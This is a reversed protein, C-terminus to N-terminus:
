RASATSCVRPRSAASAATPSTGSTPRTPRTGSADLAPLRRSNCIDRVLQKFDYKYETFKKGLADFLEPNSPPNSVRIDDVPEVIGIGFFHAWVRNAVSTAFYPNEPSTLWEALVERRDKGAVDPAAGGLFKPPMSRGGVPIRASRRRRLQLRDDRPLGRGAQPRDPRLVRRLQLLRGDDLPRVSPQPVPRVAIRMGMFVQAVNEATKLTDREIQYFNTAPNKFTGGSAGLLEQVMENSRCTAPSRTPAALQLVPVDVQLQGPQDVQDHLLEAWKMAWIEAFEKRELLEDVLKARKAPDADAMFAHTSTPRRCCAPSTSRRRPPPVGRRHVARQAAIRLKKLKADVLEDIYNGPSRAAAHVQLGKPLVLVQSGVTHTDFRAMVFAEGRAAPPSWATPRSRRGLQRQEDPVRGPQTVDRDTGDSYKARPSSSSRPARRRRARGAASLARRRRRDARRGADNPAGAELWRLLTQYYESDPEFRKGGTHPVAAPREKRDAPERGAVALNIRRTGIERTLRYHDGDPDFGFLSLRFGDKGRAAGHCSGTNCGARMFVPMVDLKFSIPRDAAADKVAVPM